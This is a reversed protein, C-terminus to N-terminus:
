ADFEQKKVPREGILMQARKRFSKAIDKGQMIGAGLFAFDIRLDELVEALLEAAHDQVPVWEPNNESRKVICPGHLGYDSTPDDAALARMLAIEAQAYTGPTSEATWKPGPYARWDELGYAYEWKEM